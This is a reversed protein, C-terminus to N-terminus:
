SVPASRMADVSAGITTEVIEFIRRRVEQFQRKDATAYDLSRPRIIRVGGHIQRMRMYRTSGELLQRAQRIVRVITQPDDGDEVFIDTSDTWDAEVLLWGRLNEARESASGGSPQFPHTEPWMQAAVGIVRFLFAHDKHSRSAALHGCTPCPRM